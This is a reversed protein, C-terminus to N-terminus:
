DSFSKKLKNVKYSIGFHSTYGLIQHKVFSIDFILNRFHYGIGFTYLTPKVSVGVRGTFFNKIHYEVGTKYVPDFELDKEAELVFDVKNSFSYCAGAGFITPMRQNMNKDIKTMTPNFVHTGFSFNEFPTAFVGIEAALSGIKGYDLGQRIRLYDLQIGASFKETLALSYALGFKSRNFLDYGFYYYNIGFTGSESVPIAVAFAKTSLKKVAFANYLYVGISLTDINSLCAQNYFNAGVDVITLGCNGLSAQRAGISNQNQSQLFSFYFVFGIFICIKHKM